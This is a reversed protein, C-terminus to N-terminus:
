GIPWLTIEVANSDLPQPVLVTEEEENLAEDYRRAPIRIQALYPGDGGEVAGSADGRVEVFVSVDQQRDAADIEVGAINILTGSGSFNAVPQGAQMLIIQPM